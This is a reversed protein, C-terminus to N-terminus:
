RTELGVLYNGVTWLGNDLAATMEVRLPILVEPTEDTEGAPAGDTGYDIDAFTKEQGVMVIGACDIELKSGGGGASCSLCM